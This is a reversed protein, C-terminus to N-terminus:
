GIGEGEQRMRFVRPEHKQSFIFALSQASAASTLEPCLCYGLLCCRYGSLVIVAEVSRSGTQDM